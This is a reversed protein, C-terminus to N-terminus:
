HPLAPVGWGKKALQRTWRLREERSPRRGAPLKKRLDSPLATQCFARVDERFALEDEGFSLNM